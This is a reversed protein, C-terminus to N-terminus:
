TAEATSSVLLELSDIVLTPSYDPESWRRGRSLWATRMGLRRAGDIDHRPSDGVMWADRLSFRGLEAAAEFIEPAPKKVGLDGSVVIGDVLEGFGLTDIKGHQQGSSGNTVIITTDGRARLAGLCEFAGPTPATLEVIRRQYAALLQDVPATLAFRDRISTFVDRRDSYGDNDLAVIWENAGSPLRNQSCFEDVWTAVSRERDALTNDLDIM